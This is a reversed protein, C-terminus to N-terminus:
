TNASSTREPPLETSVRQSSASLSPVIRSTATDDALITRNAGNLNIANAFTTVDTALTSSLMLTGMLGSGVGSGWNLMAGNGGINVLTPRTGAAFGGGNATWQINGAGGTGLNGYFSLPSNSLLIGGDLSLFNTPVSYGRDGQLIGGSITTAGSWTNLRTLVLRGPGAQGSASGVRLGTLRSGVAAARNLSSFCCRAALVTNDGFLEPGFTTASKFWNIGDLSRNEM